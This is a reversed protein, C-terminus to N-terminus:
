EENTKSEVQAEREKLIQSFLYWKVCERGDEPVFYWIEDGEYLEFDEGAGFLIRYIQKLPFQKVIEREGDIGEYTLGAADLTCQGYGTKELMSKGDKCSHFLTVSASLSVEERLCRKEYAYWDKITPFECDFRYRDDLTYERGCCNCKLKKSNSSMDEGECAPCKYLVNHLGEALKGKYRIKPHAQLWEYDDYYMAANVRETLEEIPISNAEGAKFLETLNCEVFGGRRMKKAWKPLKFYNGNIRLVYVPLNLKQIFKYTVDQIEEFQGVTSLRAEPMMVLVENYGIVRFCNKVTELDPTFISKPICGADKIFKGLSKKYFYMRNTIFHPKDKKTVAAAYFFDVFSGHTVLVLSPKELKKVDKNIRVKIRCNCWFTIACIVRRVFFNSGKRVVTKSSYEKDMAVRKNVYAFIKKRNVYMIVILVVISVFVILSTVWSAVMTMRGLMIGIIISPISGFTTLAMYRPYKTKLTATFFCILGYPIAPLFYLIFVFAAVRKSHRAKEFDIDLKKQFYKGLKDGYIKYLAYIISNGLIVGGLCILFGNLAGYIMGSLVQVPEAPMFPLIVQFVTLIVIVIVGRYGFGNFEDRDIEGNIIKKLIEANEGSFLFLLLGAIIALFAVFILIKKLKSKM